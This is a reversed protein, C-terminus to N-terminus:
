HKVVLIRIRPSNKEIDKVFTDINRIIGLDYVIFTLNKFKSSYAPIDANIEDILDQQKRDTKCLKVELVSNLDEFTFDPVIKKSSYLIGVKEREFAYGKSILMIEIIDQVDKEKEPRKIMSKRLNEFLFSELETLVRFSDKQIVDLFSVMQSVAVLLEDVLSVNRNFKTSLGSTLLYEPLEPILEDSDKVHLSIIRDRLLNYRKAYPRVDIVGKLVLKIQNEIENMLSQALRFIIEIDPPEVTM